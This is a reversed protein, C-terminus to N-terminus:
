GIINSGLMEESKNDPTLSLNDVIFGNLLKDNSLSDFFYPADNPAIAGVRNFINGLDSITIQFDFGNKQIGTVVGYKKKSRVGFREYLKDFEIIIKDNIALDAVGEKARINVLCTSLSKFLLYRQAIIEAKDDEYLYITISEKKVIKSTKNVFDSQFNYLKFSADGSITDIFPSYFCDIENLVENKSAVTFSIIDDDKFVRASAPKVSNLISYSAEFDKNFFLAGFCSNNIKNVVDRIMPAQTGLKEPVVMSTVFDCLESSLDFSAQNINPLGADNEILHNVAQSPTKIWGNEDMGFCSVTILSNDNINDVNKILCSTTQTSGTFSTRILVAQETVNLIEYWDVETISNKRIWDRPKLISRLDVTASTTITRSGNTFTVNVGLLRQPFINFEALDNIELIAETTNTLSFDRNTILRRDGYYADFIPSRTIFDGVLPTPQITQNLVVIDGSVRVVRAPSGNVFVQDFEKFELANTVRFKNSDIIQTIEVSFERLKHGAIHWRRSKKRWPIKPKVFFVSSSFSFELEKSANAITNNSISEIEFKLLEGGVQVFIEDSPSLEDNFLTSVGTIGTSGNTGSITGTAQFGDKTADINACQVKDAKGYIRRKPKNLISDLVEGDSESFLELKVQNRLNFIQDALTFNVNSGTFSKDTIVGRFLMIKNIFDDNEFYFIECKQNEFIHQDYLQDFYGDQNILNVSSKGELVTGTAKEDLQQSVNGISQLRAKFEVDDGNNLDSPINLPATSFFHLCRITIDFNVPDTGNSTKLYLKNEIPNYFFEGNSLPLTGKTLETGDEFVSDVFLPDNLVLDSRSYLGVGESQFIKALKVSRLITCLIKEM